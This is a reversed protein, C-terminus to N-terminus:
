QFKGLHCKLHWDKEGDGTERTKVSKFLEPDAEWKLERTHCWLTRVSAPTLLFLWHYKGRWSLREADRTIVQGGGRHLGGPRVRLKSPLMYIERGRCSPADGAKRERTMLSLGAGAQEGLLNLM